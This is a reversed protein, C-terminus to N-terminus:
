LFANEIIKLSDSNLYSRFDGGPPVDEPDAVSFLRGYLRLTATVCESASVWHIIGKIKKGEKTPKGGLTVADYDCHLEIVNGKTDKIVENCKIVYANRLRVEQGPSLRFFDATPNEM